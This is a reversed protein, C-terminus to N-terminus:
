AALTAYRAPSIGWVFSCHRDMCLLIAWYSVALSFFCSVAPLRQRCLKISPGARVQAPVARHFIDYAQDKADAVPAQPLGTCSRLTVTNTSVEKAAARDVSMLFAAVFDNSRLVPRQWLYLVNQWVKQFISDSPRSMASQPM